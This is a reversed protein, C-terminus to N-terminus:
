RIYIDKWDGGIGKGKVQEVLVAMAKKLLKLFDNTFANSSDKLYVFICNPDVAQCVSSVPILQSQLFVKFKKNHESDDGFLSPCKPLVFGDCIAVGLKTFETASEFRPYLTNLWNEV